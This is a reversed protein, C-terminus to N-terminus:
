NTGHNKLYKNQISSLLLDMVVMVVKLERDVVQEVVLINFVLPVVRALVVAAPEVEVLVVLDLLDMILVLVVAAVM